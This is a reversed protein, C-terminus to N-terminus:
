WRPPRGTVVGRGAPLGVPPGGAAEQPGGNGREADGRPLVSVGVGATVLLVALLALTRANTRTTM